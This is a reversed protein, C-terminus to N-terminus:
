VASVLEIVPLFDSHCSSSDTQPNGLKRILLRGGALWGASKLRSRPTPFPGKYEKDTQLALASQDARDVLIGGDANQPNHANATLARFIQGYKRLTEKTYNGANDEVAGWISYWSSYKPM